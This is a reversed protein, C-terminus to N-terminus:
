SLRTLCTGDGGSTIDILVRAHCYDPQGVDPLPCWCCLDHGALEARVILRDARNRFRYHRYLDVALQRWNNDVGVQWVNDFEDRVQTPDEPDLRFPNGWKTGRGVYIATHGSGCSCLPTRWDKTRERQIRRPM